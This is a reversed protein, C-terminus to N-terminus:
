TAHQAQRGNAQRQTRQQAEAMAKDLEPSITYQGDVDMELLERYEKADKEAIVETKKNYKRAAHMRQIRMAHAVLARRVRKLTAHWVQHQCFSANDTEVKTFSTYLERWTIRLFALALTSGMKNASWLGLVIAAQGLGSIQDSIYVIKIARM